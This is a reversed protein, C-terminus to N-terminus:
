FKFEKVEGAGQFVRIMVETAAPTTTNLVSSVDSAWTATGPQQTGPVTVGAARVSVSLRGLRMAVSVHEAQEQTVELTVTRNQNNDSAAPAAGQVIQQDIAIVRSNSLVTEAAVRQGAPRGADTISQTLILDVRDGPWILGISGTTADVGITVARMGPDLVAALFGHDGPRMVDEARFPENKAIGRRLMAGALGRQAEVSDVTADIPVSEIAVEQSTIDEPKLLNGAHVAHAAVLIAKKTVVLHAATVPTPPPRTAIWAVTGFGVLGLAMLVFFLVRVVM